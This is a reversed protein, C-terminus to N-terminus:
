DNKLNERDKVELYVKEEATENWVVHGCNKCEKRTNTLKHVYPQGDEFYVKDPHAIGDELVEWEEHNCTEKKDNKSFPWM